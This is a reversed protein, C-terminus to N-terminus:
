EGKLDHLHLEFLMRRRHIKPDDERITQRQDKYCVFQITDGIYYLRHLLSQIDDAITEVAATSTGEDIVNIEMQYLTKGSDYGLENMEFTVYPYGFRTPKKQFYVNQAVSELQAQIQDRLETTKSM